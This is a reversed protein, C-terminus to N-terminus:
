SNRAGRRSLRARRCRTPTLAPPRARLPERRPRSLTQARSFNVGSITYYICRGDPLAARCQASLYQRSSLGPKVPCPYRIVDAPPSGLSLAVSVPRGGRRKPAPSLLLSVTLYSSVREGPLRLVTYVRDSAVGCAAAKPKARGYGRTARLPMAVHGGLYITRTEPM